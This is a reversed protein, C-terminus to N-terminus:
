APKRVKTVTHKEEAGIPIKRVGHKCDWRLSHTNVSHFYVKWAKGHLLRLQFLVHSSSLSLEGNPLHLFRVLRSEQAPRVMDRGCAAQSLLVHSEAIIQLVNVRDAHSGDRYCGQGSRKTVHLFALSVRTEEAVPKRLDTAACFRSSFYLTAGVSMPLSSTPVSVRMSLDLDTLLVSYTGTEM